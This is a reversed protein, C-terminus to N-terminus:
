PTNWCLICTNSITNRRPSTQKKAIHTIHYVLEKRMYAAVCLVVIGMAVLSLFVNLLMKSGLRM